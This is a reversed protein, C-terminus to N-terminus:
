SMRLEHAGILLIAPRQHACDHRDGVDGPREPLDSQADEEEELSPSRNLSFCPVLRSLHLEPLRRHGGTPNRQRRTIGEEQHRDKLAESGEEHKMAEELRRVRPPWPRCSVADSSSERVPTADKSTTGAFHLYVFGALLILFAGISSRSRNDEAWDIWDENAATYDPADGASLVLRGAAASRGRPGFALACAGLYM